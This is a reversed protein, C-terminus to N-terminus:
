EFGKLMAVYVVTGNVPPTVSGEMTKWFSTADKLKSGSVISEEKGGKWNNVEILM